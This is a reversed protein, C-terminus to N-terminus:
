DGRSVSARSHPWVSSLLRWGPLAMLQAQIAQAGVRYTPEALARRVADRILSPTVKAPNVIPLGPGGMILDLVRAPLAPVMGHAM